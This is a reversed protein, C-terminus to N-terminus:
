FLNRVGSVIWFCCNLQLKRRFSIWIFRLFDYGAHKHNNKFNISKKEM